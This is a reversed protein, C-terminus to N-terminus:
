FTEVETIPQLRINSFQSQDLINAVKKSVIIYATGDPCFFDSGDWANPDFYLGVKKVYEPGEPISRAIEEKRLSKILSGCRGTIHFGYYSHDVLSLKKDLIAVPHFQIGTTGDLNLRIRESVVCLSPWGCFLLDTWVLGGKRIKYTRVTETPDTLIQPYKIQPDPFHELWTCQKTDLDSLKYYEKYSFATINSTLM